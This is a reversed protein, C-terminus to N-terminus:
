ANSKEILEIEVGDPDKIFAIKTKKEPEDIRNLVFPEYLWKYDFKSLKDTIEDLNEVIFAFHGFCNGVEYGNKPSDFNATLEIARNGDEDELFYLKCDELETIKVVSLGMFDRYFELSKQINKVRIMGHAFKM